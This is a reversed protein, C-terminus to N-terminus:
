GSVATEAHWARREAPSLGHLGLMRPRRPDAPRQAAPVHKKPVGAAAPALPAQATLTPMARATVGPPPEARRTAALRASGHEGDSRKRESAGRARSKNSSSPYPRELRRQPADAPRWRGGITTLPAACHPPQQDCVRSLATSSGTLDTTSAGNRRARTAAKPRLTLSRKHLTDEAM